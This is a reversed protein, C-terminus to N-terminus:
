IEACGSRRRRGRMCKHGPMQTDIRVSQVVVKSRRCGGYEFAQRLDFCPAQLAEKLGRAPRDRDPGIPRAGGGVKRQLGRDPGIARPEDPTKCPEKILFAVCNLGRQMTGAAKDKGGRIWAAGKQGIVGQTRHPSQGDDGGIGLGRQM